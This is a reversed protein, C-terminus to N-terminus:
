DDGGNYANMVVTILSMGNENSHAVFSAGALETTGTKLGDVGERFNDQGELM